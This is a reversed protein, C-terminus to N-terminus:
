PSEWLHACSICCLVCHVGSTLHQYLSTLQLQRLVPWWLPQQFKLYPPPPILHPGLPRRDGEVGDAKTRSDLVSKSERGGVRILKKSFVSLHSPSLLVLSRPPDRSSSSSSSSLRKLRTQSQAVGYVAAWGQSDGPLFVPTPQWKRRWHM